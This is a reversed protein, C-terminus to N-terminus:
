SSDSRNTFVPYPRETQPPLHRHMRWYCGCCKPKNVRVVAVEQLLCKRSWLLAQHVGSRGFRDDEEDAVVPRHLLLWSRCGAGPHQASQQVRGDLDGRLQFRRIEPRASREDSDFRRDFCRGVRFGFDGSDFHIGGPFRNLKLENKILYLVCWSLLVYGTEGYPGM